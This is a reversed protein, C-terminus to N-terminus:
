EIRGKFALDLLCKIIFDHEDESYICIDICTKTEDSRDIHGSRTKPFKGFISNYYAKVQKSVSTLHYMDVLELATKGNLLTGGETLWECYESLTRYGDYKKEIDVVDDYYDDYHAVFDLSSLIEELAARQGDEADEKFIIRLGIPEEQM